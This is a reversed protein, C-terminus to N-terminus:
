KMDIHETSVFCGRNDTLNFYYATTGTPLSATVRKAAADVQADITQWKRDKWAGSDITYNLAASVVPLSSAYATWIKEGKSGQKGCQILPTGGKLKSDAFAYIEKPQWGDQQGHGMRVRIVLTREGKTLMYSKKYIDLYLFPDNTGTLWLMPMVTHGLYSSPDWWNIWNTKKDPPMSAIPATLLSDEHLFGCGYVPISFKFRNDVGSVTCALFGGWSIGTLGIRDSDVDPMSRLLSNALIVDAVAHYNWTDKQAWTIQDFGYGTSPPGAWEHRPRNPHNGKPLTGNWDMSIAAYGKATWIRVWEDSATGGGGHALVMGPVKMGPAHAPMGVWAFVRTEKGRWPEGKYFLAKVGEATFDPATYTTPPDTLAEMDWLMGPTALAQPSTTQTQTTKADQGAPDSAGQVFSNMCVLSFMILLNAILRSYFM